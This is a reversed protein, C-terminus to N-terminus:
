NSNTRNEKKQKAHDITLRHIDTVKYGEILKDLRQPEFNNVNSCVNISACQGTIFQLQSGKTHDHGHINYGFPIDIPEHSLLIKKNIFLPGEYIEDFLKNDYEVYVREVGDSDLHVEASTFLISERLSRLLQKRTEHNNWELEDVTGLARLDCKRKYNDTGADHNGKILIKTGNIKSVYSVDGVDGLLILLDNKKVKSNIKKVQEEPTPWNKDMLLCDTDNFHPDSYIWINDYCRTWNSFREYLIDKM